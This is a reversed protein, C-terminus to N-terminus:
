NYPRRGPYFRRRGNSLIRLTENGQTKLSEIDPAFGYPMPLITRQRGRVTGSLIKRSKNELLTEQFDALSAASKEWEMTRPNWTDYDEGRYYGGYFPRVKFYAGPENEKAPEMEDMSPKLKDEQPPPVNNQDQEKQELIEEPPPQEAKARAEELDRRELFDMASALKSEFWRYKGGFSINSSSMLEAVDVEGETSKSKLVKKFIRQVEPRVVPEPEGLQRAQFCALLEEARTSEVAPKIGGLMEAKLNEAQEPFQRVSRDYASLRDFTERAQRASKGRSSLSKWARM